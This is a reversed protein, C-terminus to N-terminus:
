SNMKSLAVMYVRYLEPPLNTQYEEKIIKLGSKQFIEQLGDYNRTASSDVNDWEVDGSALNDKIVILGGETLSDLCKKLFLVFDCDTLHGTVWQIWVVDYYNTKLTANQMGSCICTGVRSFLESGLYAGVQALFQENQELLDVSDFTRLLVFKSVRGIGAGCDLARKTNTIGNSQQILDKLFQKSGAVDVNSIHSYGGLMGNLNAPIEKWYRDADEYFRQESDAEKCGKVLSM